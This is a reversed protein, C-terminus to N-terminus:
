VSRLLARVDPQDYFPAVQARILEALAGSEHLAQIATRARGVWRRSANSSPPATAIPAM